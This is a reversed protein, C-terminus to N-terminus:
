VGDFIVFPVFLMVINLFCIPSLYLHIYLHLSLYTIQILDDPYLYDFGVVMVLVTNKKFVFM